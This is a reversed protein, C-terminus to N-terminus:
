KSTCYKRILKSGASYKQFNFGDEGFKTGWSNKITWYDKGNDTGYGVILVAHDM